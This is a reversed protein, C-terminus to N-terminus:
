RVASERRYLDPRDGVIQSSWAAWWEDPTPGLGALDAVTRADLPRPVGLTRATFEMHCLEERHIASVLAHELTPAVYDTGHALVHVRDGTGLLRLTERRDDPTFVLSPAEFAPLSLGVEIAGNRFIPAPREGALVYARGYLEHTHVIAAVDHRAAFIDRHFWRFPAPPLPGDVPPCDGVTSVLGVHSPEMRGFDTAPSMAFIRDDEPLRHSIHEFFAVLNGRRHLIRSALAIRLRIRTIEDTPVSWEPRNHSTDDVDLSRYYRRPDRSPVAEPPRQQRIAASEAPTVLRPRDSLASVIATMRALYEITDLVRLAELPTDAAVILGLGRRHGVRRGDMALAFDDAMEASTILGPADHFAAGEHALEAGTHTVPLVDRGVTGLVLASRPSGYLVAGIEPRRRFLASAIQAEVPPSGAGSTTQREADITLLDSAALFTPARPCRPTMVVARSGPVRAAVFGYLDMLSLRNAVRYVLAVEERIARPDATADSM